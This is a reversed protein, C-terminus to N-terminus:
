EGFEKTNNVGSNSKIASNLLHANSPNKSIKTSDASKNSNGMSLNATTNGLSM